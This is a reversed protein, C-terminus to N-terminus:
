PEKEEKLAEWLKTAIAARARAVTIYDMPSGVVPEVKLVGKIMRLANITEEADDERIERELTVVYGWHRDTM